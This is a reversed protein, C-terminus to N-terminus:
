FWFKTNTTFLEKVNHHHGKYNAYGTRLILVVQNKIDMHRIIEMKKELTFPKKRIKPQLYKAYEAYKAVRVYLLFNLKKTYCQFINNICM